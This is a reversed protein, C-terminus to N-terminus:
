AILSVVSCRVGAAGATTTAGAIAGATSTATVQGVDKSGLQNKFTLTYVYSGASGSRAVTVNGKGIYPHAELAAQVDVAAANYAVANSNVGNYVAYFTGSSVSGNQTLTQVENTGGLQSDLSVANATQFGCRMTVKMVVGDQTAANYYIKGDPGSIVAQDLVEINIDRRLGFINQNADIVQAIVNGSGAPYIANTGFLVPLGNWSWNNAADVAFEGLRAGTTERNRRLRAVLSRGGLIHTGAFGANYLKEDALNFDESLGGNAATSGLTVTFSAAAAQAKLDTAWTSPKGVGMLVAEDITKALTSVVQPLIANWIDFQSDELTSKNIPVFCTLTEAVLSKNAWAVETAQGLDTEGQFYAIPMADAVAIRQTGAAMPITKFARMVLSENKLSNFVQDFIPQPLVGDMEARSSYNDFAM